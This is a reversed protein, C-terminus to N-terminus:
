SSSHMCEKLQSMYTKYLGPTQVNKSNHWLFNYNTIHALYCNTGPLYYLKSYQCVTFSAYKYLETFSNDTKHYVMM